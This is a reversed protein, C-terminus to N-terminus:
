DPIPVVSGTEKQSIDYTSISKLVSKFSDTEAEPYNFVPEGM